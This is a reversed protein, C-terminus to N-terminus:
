QLLLGHLEKDESGEHQLVEITKEKALEIEKKIVAVVEENGSEFNIKDKLEFTSFFPAM